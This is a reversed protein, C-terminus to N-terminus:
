AEARGPLHATVGARSVEQAATRVHAAFRRVADDTFRPTPGGIGIAAVVSGKEDVVPAFIGSAGREREGHTVACGDARARDIRSRLEAASTRHPAAAVVRELLADDAAALLIRSAAGSWLPLEDGVRVVHRLNQPGEQQAVCVRHLGSRVYINVTEGCRRVLDGMVQRAAPTPQWASGALRSWRLLGPGPAYNGSGTPWLLGSRELTSVLRLTTTKALGSAESLERVSWQSTEETFLSLLDLTRLVSRVGGHEAVDDRSHM